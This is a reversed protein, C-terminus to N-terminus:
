ATLHYDVSSVATCRPPSSNDPPQLLHPLRHPARYMTRNPQKITTCTNDMVPSIHDAPQMPQEDGTSSPRQVVQRTDAAHVVSALQLMCTGALTTQVMCGHSQQMHLTAVRMEGHRNHLHVQMLMSAVYDRAHRLTTIIKTCTSTLCPMVDDGQLLVQAHKERLQGLRM